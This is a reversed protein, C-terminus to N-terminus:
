LKLTVEIKVNCLYMSIDLILPKTFNCVNYNYSSNFQRSLDNYMYIFLFRDCELIKKLYNLQQTHRLCGPKETTYVM